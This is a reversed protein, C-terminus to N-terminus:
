AQLIIGLQVVGIKAIVCVWLNIVKQDKKDAKEALVQAEVTADAILM